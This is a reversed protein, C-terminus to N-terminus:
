ACPPNVETAAESAPSLRMVVSDSVTV